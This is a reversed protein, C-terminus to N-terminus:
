SGEQGEVDVEVLVDDLQVRAGPLVHVRTVTGRGPARLTHEMKMAEVIALADGTEVVDGVAVEVAIVAGPMPSRAAWHGRVGAVDRRAGRRDRPRRSELGHHEGGAHFWLRRGDFAAEEVPSPETAIGDVVVEIGGGGCRLAVSHDGVQWHQWAPGGLRWSDGSEWLNAGSAPVLARAAGAIARADVKATHPSRDDLLRTDMDGAVVRPDEILAALDDINTTVGLCVTERMARGLMDLAATRTAAHVIVKAVMPDYDASVVSGTVVGSDVRAHQPARWLLIPGGTPVYDRQPDEAYVRAEVAHGSFAVDGQSMGLPQGAAISVQQEVLDIGTVAETVPHEVQLRTNMELFAYDRPHDAPVVFEVTGANTYGVSTALRVAADCLEDRIGADLTSPAEEVVKQHRRQLTCDREGLHILNGLSDGLVQVEIHRPRELYREVLLRDDGFASRSERRASAIAATVDDGRRVVRMGKGGGGAAPKLLAPTGVETIAAMLAADDMQRDHRGPVVPVGAAIALEKAAIKDGMAAIVDPRPGIFVLGAAECARAFDANESLFGYGPHVAQAGAALAASVVRDIALYSERAPAPGIRVAEDAMTVHLAGADADSYVAISAIGMRRLTRMIRVAIEGRNAILIRDFM